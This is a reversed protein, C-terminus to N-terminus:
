NASDILLFGFLVMTGGVRLLRDRFFFQPTTREIVLISMFGAMLFFTPMRWSNIWLLIVGIWPEIEPLYDIEPLVEKGVSKDVFILPSHIVIGLFMAVSRLLDFNHYRYLTKGVNM